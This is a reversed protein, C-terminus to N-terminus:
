STWFTLVMITSVVQRENYPTKFANPGILFDKSLLPRQAEALTPIDSVPESIM